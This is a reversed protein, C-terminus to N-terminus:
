TDYEHDDHKRQKLNHPELHVAHLVSRAEFGIVAAFIVSRMRDSLSRM